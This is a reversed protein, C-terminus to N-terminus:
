GSARADTLRTHEVKRHRHRSWILAFLSAGIALTMIATETLISPTFSTPAATAAQSTLLVPTSIISTYTMPQIAEITSYMASSAAAFAFLQVTYTIPYSAVNELVIYYDGEALTFDINYTRELYGLTIAFYSSGCPPNGAIFADYQPQSMVYFNFPSSASVTGVVERVSEDVRFHYPAYFCIQQGTAPSTFSPPIAGASTEYPSTTLGSLTTVGISVTSSRTQSYVILSTITTYTQAPSGAQLLAPFLLVVFLVHVLRTAIVGPDDSEYGATRM